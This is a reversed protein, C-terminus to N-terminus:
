TDKPKKALRTVALIAMRRGLREIEREIDEKIVEAFEILQHKETRFRTMVKNQGLARDLEYFFVNLADEPEALRNVIDKRTGPSKEEIWRKTPEKGNVLQCLFDTKSMILKDLHYKEQTTPLCFMAWKVSESAIVYECALFLDACRQYREVYEGVEEQLEVLFSVYQPNPSQSWDDREVRNEITWEINSKCSKLQAVLADRTALRKDVSPKVFGFGTVLLLASCLVVVSAYFIESPLLRSNSILVIIVTSIAAIITAVPALGGEKNTLM